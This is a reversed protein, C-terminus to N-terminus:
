DLILKIPSQAVPGLLANLISDSSFYFPTFLFTKLHQETLLQHCTNTSNLTLTLGMVKKLSVNPHHIFCQTRSWPCKGISQGMLPQWIAAFQKSTPHLMPSIGPVHLSHYPKWVTVKDKEEYTVDLRITFWKKKLYLPWCKDQGKLYPKASGNKGRAPRSNPAWKIAKM